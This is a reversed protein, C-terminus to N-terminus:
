ARLFVFDNRYFIIMLSEIRLFAFGSSIFTEMTAIFDREIIM